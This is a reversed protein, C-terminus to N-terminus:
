AYWVCGETFVEHSVVKGDADSRALGRAAVLMEGGGDLPREQISGDACSMDDDYGDLLARADAWRADNVAQYVLAALEGLSRDVRPAALDPSTTGGDRAPTVTVTRPAPSSPRGGRAYACAALALLGVVSLLGRSTENM